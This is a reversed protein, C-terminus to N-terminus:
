SGMEDLRAKAVQERPIRWLKGAEDRVLLTGDELGELLGQFLKREEIPAYTTVQVRQGRFIQFDRDTKLRRDLGPSAVELYYSGPIPDAADLADSLARSFRQCDELTVGEPRFLTVRLVYRGQEKRYEVDVLTVEQEAAIPAALEEVAAVTSQREM